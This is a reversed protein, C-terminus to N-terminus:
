EHLQFIRGFMEDERLERGRSVIKMNGPITIFMQKNTIRLDRSMKMEEIFSSQIERIDMMGARYLIMTMDKDSVIEDYYEKTCAFVFNVDGSRELRNWGDILLEIIERTSKDETQM